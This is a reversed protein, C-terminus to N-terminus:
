SLLCSWLQFKCPPSAKCLAKLKRNKSSFETGGVRGCNVCKVKFRSFKERKQKKSLGSDSIYKKIENEKTTDYKLKLKYYENIADLIDPNM